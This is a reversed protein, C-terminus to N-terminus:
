TLVCGSTVPATPWTINPGAVVSVASPGTSYRSAFLLPRLHTLTSISSSVPQPITGYAYLSFAATAASCHATPSSNNRSDVSGQRTTSDVSWGFPPDNM